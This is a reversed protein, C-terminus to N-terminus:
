SCRFAAKQLMPLRRPRFRSAKTHSRTAVTRLSCTSTARPPRPLLSTTILIYDDALLMAELDIIGQTPSFYISYVRSEDDVTYVVSGIPSEANNYAFANELQPGQTGGEEDNSSCSSLPLTCVGIVSLLMCLSYLKKM